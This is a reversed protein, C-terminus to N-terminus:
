DDIVTQISSLVGEGLVRAPDLLLTIGNEHRGIGVVYDEDTAHGLRPPQQIQGDKMESVESVADVIFGVQCSAVDLVIICTREGYRTSERGFRESLDIVPLVRGRLNIFGKAYGPFEPIPTIPQMGIIQVVDSIPVGFLQEGLFFTLYRDTVYDERIEALQEM